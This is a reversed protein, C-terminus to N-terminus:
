ERRFVLFNRTLSKHVRYPYHGCPWFGLDEVEDLWPMDVEPLTMAMYRGKVLIEAMAEFAREYIGGIKEGFTRTARGYPPDTAVSDVIVDQSGKLWVPLDGVDGNFLLPEEVGVFDLNSKTGDIMKEELDGGVVRMGMLGAEMLIGGTGCFPDLV